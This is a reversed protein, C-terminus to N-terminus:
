ICGGCERSTKLSQCFKKLFEFFISAVVGRLDLFRSQLTFFRRMGYYKLFDVDCKVYNNRRFKLTASNIEYEKNKEYITQDKSMVFSM